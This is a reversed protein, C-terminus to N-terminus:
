AGKKPRRGPGPAQKVEILELSCSATIPLLTHEEVFEELQDLVEEQEDETGDLVVTLILKM